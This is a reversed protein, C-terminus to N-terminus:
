NGVGDLFEQIMKLQKVMQPTLKGAASYDVTNTVFRLCCKSFFLIAALGTEASMREAFVAARRKVGEVYNESVVDDTYILALLLPLQHKDKDSAMSDFDIFERTSFENIERATYVVGDIEVTPQFKGELPKQLMESVTVILEVFIEFPFTEVEKEDCNLAVALLRKNGGIDMTGNQIEEFEIVQKVTIDAWSEPVNYVIKNIEIQKM